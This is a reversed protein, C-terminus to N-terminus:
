FQMKKSNLKKATEFDFKKRTDIVYQSVAIRQKILLELKKLHQQYKPNNGILYRLEELQQTVSVTATNYPELYNDQGTIVYGRQGTEVDKMQSVVAELKELIEHSNIAQNYTRILGNLNRYSVISIIILILSTLGFGAAVNKLFSSGQKIKQRRIM